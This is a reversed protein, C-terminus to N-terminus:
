ECELTDGDKWRRLVLYPGHLAGRDLHGFGLLTGERGEAASLYKVRELGDRLGARTLEPARALGWALLRGLDYGKAAALSQPAPIDYRERLASLTSNDDSFLDVYLWGDIRRAFDPAYGRIGASNMLREGRWDTATLADALAAAAHGLGLYVVAGAGGATVQRAQKGAESALVGIPAVAIVDVALADAQRQFFDLYRRGIPSRDHVVGVRTLGQRALYTVLLCPEDEHSGVQLQFMHEGRGRETGAWNITPVRYREALPTAVLANDGIAPGVIALVDQKVLALFAREVAGATGEPLGLGWAHVFEVDRDLQGDRLLEDAALRLWHEIDVPGPPGASMDNLIGVRIPEAM